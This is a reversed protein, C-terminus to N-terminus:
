LNIGARSLYLIYIMFDLCLLTGGKFRNINEWNSSKMSDYPFTLQKTTSNTSMIIHQRKCAKAVM